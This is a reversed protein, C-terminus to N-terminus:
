GSPAMAPTVAATGEEGTRYAAEGHLPVDLGLSEDRDSARLSSFVGILKLLGYSVVGSYVIAALM